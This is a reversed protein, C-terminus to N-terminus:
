TSFWLSVKFFDHRIKMTYVSVMKFHVLSRPCWLVICIWQSPRGPFFSFHLNLPPPFPSFQMFVIFLGYFQLKLNYFIISICLTFTTLKGLVYFTKDPASSSFVFSFPQPAPCDTRVAGPLFAIEIIHQQQKGNSWLLCQVHTTTLLHQGLTIPQTRRM